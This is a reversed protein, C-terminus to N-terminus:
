REEPFPEVIWEFKKETQCSGGEFFLTEVKIPTKNAPKSHNEIKSSERLLKEVEAIVVKEPQFKMPKTLDEGEYWEIRGDKIPRLSLHWNTGVWLDKDKQLFALFRGKSLRCQACIFTEDGHLIFDASIEGKIKRVMSAKSSKQYTWTTGKAQDVFPDAGANAKAPGPDGLEIIAIVLSKEVLESRKFFYAKAHGHSAPVLVFGLIAALTKMAYTTAM